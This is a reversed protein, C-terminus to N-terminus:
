IGEDVFGFGCEVPGRGKSSLFGSTAIFEAAKLFETPFIKFM